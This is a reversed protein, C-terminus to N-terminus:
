ALLYRSTGVPRHQAAVERLWGVDVVPTGRRRALALKQSASGAGGVAARHALLHTCRATLSAEFEGGLAAVDVEVRELLVRSLGTCCVVAGLLPPAAFDRPVCGPRNRHGLTGPRNADAICRALWTPRVVYVPPEDPRPPRRRWGAWGHGADWAARAKETAADGCLLHTCRREGTLHLAGDFAGGAAAVLAHARQRDAPALGTCCVRVGRLLRWRLAYRRAGAGSPDPDEPWVALCHPRWLSREHAAGRLAACVGGARALDLPALQRLVCHLCDTPLALLPATQPRPPAALRRRPASRANRGYDREAGRRADM